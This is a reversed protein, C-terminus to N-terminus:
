KGNDQERVKMMADAIEYAWKTINGAEYSNNPQTPSSLAAMAFQDRLTPLELPVVKPPEKHAEQWVPTGRGVKRENAIQETIHTNESV